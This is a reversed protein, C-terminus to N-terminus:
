YDRELLWERNIPEELLSYGNRTMRAWIDRMVSARVIPRLPDYKRVANGIAVAKSKVHFEYVRRDPDLIYVM